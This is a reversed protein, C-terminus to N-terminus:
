QQIIKFEFIIRLVQDKRLTNENEKYLFTRLGRILDCKGLCDSRVISCQNFSFMRKSASKSFM